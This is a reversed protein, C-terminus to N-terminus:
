FNGIGLRASFYLPSFFTLIKQIVISTDMLFPALGSTLTLVFTFLTNKKKTRSVSVQGWDSYATNTNNTM